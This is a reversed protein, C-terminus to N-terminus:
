SAPEDPDCEELLLHLHREFAVGENPDGGEAFTERVAAQLLAAARRLAQEPPEGRLLGGCLVSALLDGTGSYGGGMRRTSVSFRRNAKADYGLNWLNEGQRVGTVVVIRPGMAALREALAWIPELREAAALAAFDEGTLLCAETLNPTIVGARRVLRGVAACMTEDFVPYVAGHDGLVPDVLVLTDPGAFADLFREVFAAQQASCLFGSYIGDFRVGRRQWESAFSALHPTMDAVAYSSFGTQNSLVATPLPCAQVGMVSLVPIAATLSCKGLGSLDHICAAKRIPM